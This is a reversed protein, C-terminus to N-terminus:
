LSTCDFWVWMGKDKWRVTASCSFLFNSVTHGIREDDMELMCINGSVKLWVTGDWRVGMGFM